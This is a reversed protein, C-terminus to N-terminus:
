ALANEADDSSPERPLFTALEDPAHKALCERLRKNEDRLTSNADFLAQKEVRLAQLASKAHNVQQAYTELQEKLRNRQQESEALAALLQGIETNHEDDASTSRTLRPSSPPMQQRMREFEAAYTDLREKSIDLRMAQQIVVSVKSNAMCPLDRHLFQLTEEFDDCCVIQDTGLLLLQVAVKFLAATDFALVVDLVRISFEVSFQSSFFSLFWPTAYLFPEVGHCEFHNYVKPCLDHLLRSYQYLQIQLAKMDPMYQRRFNQTYMLHLLVAFADEENLNMLLLGGVFSLGQCYGVDADFVSYARMCNFLSVQGDGWRQVFLPHEPFTRDIDIKIAHRYISPEVLLDVYSAAAFSGPRRCALHKWIKGRESAPLGLIVLRHIQDDTWAVPDTELLPAWERAIMANESILAAKRQESEIAQNEKAMRILLLQQQVAKRWRARVIDRRTLSDRPPAIQRAPTGITERRPARATVRKFLQLKFGGNASISESRKLKSPSTPSTPSTSGDNEIDLRSPKRGMLNDFSSALSRKFSSLSSLRKRPMSPPPKTATKIHETRMHLFEACIIDLMIQNREDDSLTDINKRRFETMARARNEEPLQDLENQLIQEAEVHHKDAVSERLTAAPDSSSAISSVSSMSISRERGEIEPAVLNLWAERLGRVTRRVLDSSSMSFVHCHLQGDPLSRRMVVFFEPHYEDAAILVINPLSFRQYVRDTHADAFDLNHDAVFINCLEFVLVPSGRKLARVVHRTTLEFDSDSATMLAVGHFCCRLDRAVVQDAETVSSIQALPTSPEEVSKDSPAPSAADQRHLSPRVSGAPPLPSVQRSSRPPANAAAAAAAPGVSNSRLRGTGDDLANLGELSVSRATPALHRYPALRSAGAAGAAGGSSSDSSSMARRSSSSSSTWRMPSASADSWRGANSASRSCIRADVLLM